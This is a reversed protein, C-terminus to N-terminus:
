PWTKVPDKWGGLFGLSAAGILERGRHTVAEIGGWDRRRPQPGPSTRPELRASYIAIVDGAALVISGDELVTGARFLGKTRMSRAITGATDFVSVQYANDSESAAPAKTLTIPAGDNNMFVLRSEGSEGPGLAIRIRRLIGGEDDLKVLDGGSLFAWLPGAALGALSVVTQGGPLQNLDRLYVRARKGYVQVVGGNTLFLEGNQRSVLSTSLSLHPNSAARVKVAIADLVEGRPGWHCIYERDTRCAGWLTGDADAAIARLYIPGDQGKPTALATVWDANSRVRIEDFWRIALILLGIGLVVGIVGAVM